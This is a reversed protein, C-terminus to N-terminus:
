NWFWVGHVVDRSSLCHVDVLEEFCNAFKLNALIEIDAVGVAFRALTTTEAVVEGDCRVEKAEGEAGRFKRGHMDSRIRMKEGSKSGCTDVDVEPPQLPMPMPVLGADAVSSGAAM